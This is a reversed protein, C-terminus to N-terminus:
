QTIAQEKNLDLTALVSKTLVKWAYTWKAQFRISDPKSRYNPLRAHGAQPYSFYSLSTDCKISLTRCVLDLNNEALGRTFHRCVSSSVMM